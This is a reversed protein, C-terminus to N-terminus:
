PISASLVAREQFAKSQKISRKLVAIYAEHFPQRAEEDAWPISMAEDLSLHRVDADKDTLLKKFKKESITQVHDVIVDRSSAVSGRGMGGKTKTHITQIWYPQEELLDSLSAFSLGRREREEKTNRLLISARYKRLDGLIYEVDQNMAKSKQNTIVKQYPPGDAKINRLRKLTKPGIGLFVGALGSSIVADDPLVKLIEWTDALDRAEELPTRKKSKKEELELEADTTM